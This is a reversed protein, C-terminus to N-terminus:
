FPLGDDEAQPVQVQPATQPVNVQRVAQQTTMANQSAPHWNYCNCTTFWRGNFERSKVDFQFVYEVGVQVKGFDDAKNMNTLELTTPYKGSQYSVIVSQKKWQGNKGEGVYPALVKDVVAKLEM